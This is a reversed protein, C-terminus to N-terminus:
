SRPRPPVQPDQGAGYNGRKAGGFLYVLATKGAPVDIGDVTSLDNDKFFGLQSPDTDSKEVGIVRVGSADLGKLLGQEFADERDKDAGDLNDRDRALAIGDLGGFPGKSSSFLSHRLRAPLRGGQAIQLGVARGLRIQRRESRALRRALPSDALDDSIDGIALPAAIVNVSAVRGGAPEVADSVQDDVGSPMNGVALVGIRDSRLMGRVLAPYVEREYSDRQSLQSSLDRNRERAKGLDGRLSKELDRSTGSVVGKDGIAVGLVVGIALALFVAVLSIAHYRFNVM